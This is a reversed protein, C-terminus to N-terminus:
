GAAGFYSCLKVFFGIEKKKKKRYFHLCVFLFLLLFLDQM